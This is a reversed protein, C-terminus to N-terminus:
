CPIVPNIVAGLRAIAYYSVIWQWSNSAYLTIVDGKALGLDALGGASAEVMNDLDRFSFSRDEFVLAESDGFKEAAAKTVQGLHDLM